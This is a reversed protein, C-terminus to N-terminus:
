NPNPLNDFDFSMKQLFTGGTTKTVLGSDTNLSGRNDWSSDQHVKTYVTATTADSYITYHFKKDALYNEPTGPDSVIIYPDYVTCTPCEYSPGNLDVRLAYWGDGDIIEVITYNPAPTPHPIIFSQIAFFFLAMLTISAVIRIIKKM